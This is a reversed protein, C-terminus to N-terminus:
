TNRVVAGDGPGAGAVTLPNVSLGIAAPVSTVIVIM